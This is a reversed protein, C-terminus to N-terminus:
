TKRKRRKSKEEREKRRQPYFPPLYVAKRFNKIESKGEGRVASNKSIPHFIFNHLPYKPFDRLSM